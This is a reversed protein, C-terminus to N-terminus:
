RGGPSRPSDHEGRRVLQRGFSGGPEMEVEDRLFRLAFRVLQVLALLMLAVVVLGAALLFDV